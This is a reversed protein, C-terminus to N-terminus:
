RGGGNAGCTCVVAPVTAAKAWRPVPRRQPPQEGLQRLLDVLVDPTIPGAPRRVTQLKM